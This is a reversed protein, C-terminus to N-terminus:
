ECLLFGKAKLESIVSTLASNSRARVTHLHVGGTLSSLLGAGTSHVRSIFERVDSESRLMLLGTLQGYIPHEVTVDVVECGNKVMVMLEEGVHSADHKCALVAQVRGPSAKQALVYGRPTAVIEAGQARLLAVDQVIVQRSVGLLLSLDQGTVPESSHSLRSLIFNRRKSPEM